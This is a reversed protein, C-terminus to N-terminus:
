AEIPVHREKPKTGEAEPATIELVGDKFSAKVQDPKIAAPMPVTRFFKGERRERRYFGERKAEEERKFEGKLSISDETATIEVDEKKLGPLEAKVVVSGDREFVDVAPAAMEAFPWMPAALPRMFGEMLRDMDEHLRRLESM